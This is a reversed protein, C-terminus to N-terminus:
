TLRIGSDSHLGRLFDAAAMRRSGEPQVEAVLVETTGTGVLM